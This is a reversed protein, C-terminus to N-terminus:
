VVISNLIIILQAIKEGRLSFYYTLVVPDPLKSKDFTGDVQCRVVFNGHHEYAAKPDLTVKDGFIEKAAWKRIAEHGLFERRNDNLLADSAFTAILLEPDPTNHAAVHDKIVQPLANIIDKMAIEGVPTPSPEKQAGIRLYRDIGFPLRYSPIQFIIWELSSNVRHITQIRYSQENPHDIITTEGGDRARQTNALRCHALLDGREFCM